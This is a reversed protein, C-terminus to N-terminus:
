KNGDASNMPDVYLIRAIEIPITSTGKDTKLIIEDENVELVEIKTGIGEIGYSILKDATEYAHISVRALIVFSGVPTESLTQDSCEWEDGEKMPIHIGFPTIKEPLAEYIYKAMKDSIAHEMLCAQEHIINFPVKFIQYLMAEALRHNRAIKRAIEYGKATLRLGDYQIYDVYGLKELKRQVINTLQTKSVNQGLNELIQKMKVYSDDCLSAHLDYLCEMVEEEVDRLKHKKKHLTVRWIKSKSGILKNRKYSYHCHLCFM